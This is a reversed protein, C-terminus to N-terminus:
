RVGRVSGDKVMPYEDDIVKIVENRYRLFDIVNFGQSNNRLLNVWSIIIQIKKHDNLCDLYTTWNEDYLLRSLDIRCQEKIENFNAQLRRGYLNQPLTFNKNRGAYVIGNIAFNFMDDHKDKVITDMLSHIRKCIDRNEDNFRDGYDCSFAHLEKVIESTENITNELLNYLMIKKHNEEKQKESNAGLYFAGYTGIVGIAAGIFGFFGGMITAITTILTNRDVWGWEVSPLFISLVLSTLLTVVVTLTSITLINVTKRINDNEILKTVKKYLSKDKKQMKYIYATAGFICIAIIIGIVMQIM